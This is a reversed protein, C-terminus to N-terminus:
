SDADDEDTRSKKFLRSGLSVVILIVVLWPIYVVSVESGTESTWIPIGDSILFDIIDM